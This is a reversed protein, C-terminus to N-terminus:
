DHRVGTENCQFRVALQARKHRLHFGSAPLAAFSAFASLVILRGVRALGVTRHCGVGVLLLRCRHEAVRGARFCARAESAYPNRAVSFLAASRKALAERFSM